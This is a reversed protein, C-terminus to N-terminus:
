SVISIGCSSAGERGKVGWLLEVREKAFGKWSISSSVSMFTIRLMTDLDLFIMSFVSAM